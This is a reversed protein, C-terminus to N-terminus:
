DVLVVEGSAVKGQMELRQNSPLRQFEELSFKKKNENGSPPHSGAGGRANNLVADPYLEKLKTIADAGYFLQDDHKLAPKEADDLVLSGDARLGRLMLDAGAFVGKFQSGVHEGIAKERARQKFQTAEKEKEALSDSVKQMQLTLEQVQKELGTKAGTAEEAANAKAALEKLKETLGEAESFGAAKVASEYLASEKAAKRHKAAEGNLASVHGKIAEAMQSRVDSSSEAVSGWLEMAESYEMVGGFLFGSVV